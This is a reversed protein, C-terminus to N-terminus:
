ELAPPYQVRWMRGELIVCVQRVGDLHDYTVGVIQRVGNLYDYTVVGM